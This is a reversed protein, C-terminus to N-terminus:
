VYRRLHIDSVPRNVLGAWENRVENPTTRLSELSGGAGHLLIKLALRQAESSTIMRRNALDWLLGIWPEAALSMPVAGLARAARGLTLGEDCLLRVARVALVLGIPRFLLHGGERNRFQGAVTAEQGSRAMQELAPFARRMADWLAVAKSYFVEIETDPPRYRKFRSWGRESTKLYVDLADYLAVITTISRQDTVPLSKTQAASVKKGSFLEYGDLLSRTVIAVVDDEDLAIAEKKNVPKAYRNLTTFLRRTRRRGAATKKHALFIMSVEEDGLTRSKAVARRIGVVRHQGDLAFVQERGSLVLLGLAGKIYPPLTEVPLRPSDRLALEYWRPEGGYVGVVITNFFRQRQKLLYDRIEDARSSTLARQILENLTDSQHIEQAVSIREAVADLKLFASYYVWDGMHARLAPM